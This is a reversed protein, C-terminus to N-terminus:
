PIDTSIPELGWIPSYDRQTKTSIFFPGQTEIFFVRSKRKSGLGRELKISFSHFDISPLAQLM